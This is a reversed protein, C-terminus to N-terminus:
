VVSKRDTYQTLHQWFAIDGDMPAVKNPIGPQLDKVFYQMAVDALTNGYTNPADNFPRAAVYKTPAYGDPNSTAYDPGNVGDVDGAGTYGRDNYYGDTMLVNVSRRCSYAGSNVDGKILRTDGPTTLWPNDGDTLSKSFYAGVADVAYRLPTSPNSSINQINTLMSSLWVTDLPQIGQQIVSGKNLKANGPNIEGWGARVRGTFSALTESVAGKTLSERMRYYTFWNSFNQLEQARSCVTVTVDGCDTRTTAKPYSLRTNDNLNYTTYSATKSPDAGDSLIYYLGPNFSQSSTQCSSNSMCWSTNLSVITTLDYKATAIVPDWPAASAPYAAM